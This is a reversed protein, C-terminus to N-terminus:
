RASARQRRDENEEFTCPQPAPAPRIIASGHRRTRKARPNYGRRRWCSRRAARSMGADPLTSQRTSAAAATRLISARGFCAGARMRPRRLCRSPFFTRDWDRGFNFFLLREAREDFLRVLFADDSLAAGDIRLSAVRSLIPDNRRLVILDRHLRVAWANTERESWDIVCKGFTADAGPQDLEVEALSPFQMLFDHRGKAVQQALKGRHDFGPPLLSNRGRFCCQREV